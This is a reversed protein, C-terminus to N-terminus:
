VTGPVGEAEFTDVAHRYGVDIIKDYSAFDLFGFEAVPPRIILDADTSTASGSITSAAILSELIGPVDLRDKWPLFRHRAVKWGSVSGDSGLDRSGLTSRARLDVAILSKPGYTAKMAATPVNDLVGGDVLVHGGSSRMPPLVGPIAVSSRVAKWVRGKTHPRGSGLDWTAM